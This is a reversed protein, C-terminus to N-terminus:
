EGGTTSNTGASSDFLSRRSAEGLKGLDRAMAAFTGTLWSFLRLDLGELRDDDLEAPDTIEGGDADVLRVAKVKRRVTELPGPWPAVLWGNFERVSWADSYEIFCGEFPEPADYRM